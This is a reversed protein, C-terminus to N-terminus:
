GVQLANPALLAHHDQLRFRGLFRLHLLSLVHVQGSGDWCCVAPEGHCHVVAADTASMGTEAEVLPAGQQLALPLQFLRLVHSSVALLYHAPGADERPNKFLFKLARSAPEIACTAHLCIKLVLWGPRFFLVLFRGRLMPMLLHATSMSCLWCCTHRDARLRRSSLWPCSPPAKFTSHWSRCICLLACCVELSSGAKVFSANALVRM